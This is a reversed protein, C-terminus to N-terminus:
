YGVQFGLIRRVKARAWAISDETIESEWKSAESFGKRYVRPLIIGRAVSIIFHQEYKGQLKYWLVFRHQFWNCGESKNRYAASPM